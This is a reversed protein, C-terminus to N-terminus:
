EDDVSLPCVATAIIMAVPVRFQCLTVSRGNESSVCKGIPFCFVGPTDFRISAATWSTGNLSSCACIYGNQPALDASEVPLFEGNRSMFGANVHIQGTSSNFSIAFPGDYNDSSSAGLNIMADENHFHIVPAGDSGLVFHEHNAPDPKAYDGSGTAKVAVPGSIVCDGMEGPALKQPIVGWPKNSDEFIKAPVVNEAMKSGSDFNVASGAPLESDGSNYVQIRVIGPQGGNMQNAGFGNLGNIFHRVDNALNVNPKFKQGYTVDPYFAM